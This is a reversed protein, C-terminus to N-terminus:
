EECLEEGAGTVDRLDWWRLLDWGDGLLEGLEDETKWDEALALDLDEEAAGELAYVVGSVTFTLTGGRHCTLVGEDVTFPWNKGMLEFEQRTLASEGPPGTGVAEAEPRAIRPALAFSAATGTALLVATVITRRLARRRTLRRGKPRNESAGVGVTKKAREPRQREFSQLPGGRALLRATRNYPQVVRDDCYVFLAVNGELAESVADSTYGNRSYFVAQKGDRAAVGMHSRVAGVGVAKKLHKVQAVAEAADVDIGRDAGGETRKADTFGLSRMHEEALNEADCWDIEM